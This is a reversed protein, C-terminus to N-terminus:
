LIMTHGMYNALPALGALPTSPFLMIPKRRELYVGMVLNDAALHIARSKLESFSCLDSSCRILPPLVCGSHKGQVANAPRLTLITCASRLMQDLVDQACTGLHHYAMLSSSERLVTRKGFRRLGYFRLNELERRSLVIRRHRNLSILSSLFPAHEGRWCVKRFSGLSWRSLWLYLAQGSLGFALRLHAGLTRIKAKRTYPPRSYFFYLTRMHMQRQASIMHSQAGAGRSYRAGRGPPRLVGFRHWHDTLVAAAPISFDLM